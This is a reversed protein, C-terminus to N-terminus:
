ISFDNKLEYVCNKLPKLHNVLEGPAKLFVNQM